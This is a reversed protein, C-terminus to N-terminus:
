VFPKILRDRRQFYVLLTIGVLMGEFYLIIKSKILFTYNRNLKGIPQNNFWVTGFIELRRTSVNLTTTLLGTKTAITARRFFLSLLIFAM